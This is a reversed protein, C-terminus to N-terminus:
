GRALWDGSPIVSAGACREASAEYLWCETSGGGETEVEARLRRYEAGNTTEPPIGEWEDLAALAEPTVEFTEGVVWGAAEDLRLGPYEGFDHLRGRVRAATVFRVGRYFRTVDRSAGRRLTGYLFIREAGEGPM